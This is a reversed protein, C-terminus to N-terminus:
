PAEGPLIADICWDSEKFHSSLRPDELNEVPGRSPFLAWTVPRGLLHTMDSAWFSVYLFFREALKKQVFAYNPNAVSVLEPRLGMLAIERYVVRMMEDSSIQVDYDSPAHDIRCRKMSDFPRRKPRLSDVPWQGFLIDTAKTVESVSPVKSKPTEGRRELMLDFVSEKSVPLLKHWSSFFHASSGQLRIDAKSVGERSLAHFLSSCFDAYQTPSMGLPAEKATLAAACKDSLGLFRLDADSVVYESGEEAILERPPDAYANSM